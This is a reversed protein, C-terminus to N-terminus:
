HGHGAAGRDASNRRGGSSCSVQTIAMPHLRMIQAACIMRSRFDVLVRSAVLCALSAVADFGIAFGHCGPPGFGERAGRGDANKRPCCGCPNSVRSQGWRLAIRYALNAGGQAGLGYPKPVGVSCGYPTSFYACPPATRANPTDTSLHDNRATRTLGAPRSRWGRPRRAPPTPLQGAAAAFSRSRRGRATLPPPATRQKSARAAAGPGSGGPSPPCRRGRCWGDWPMRTRM